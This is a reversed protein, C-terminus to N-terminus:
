SGGWAGPEGSNTYKYEVTEGLPLDLLLSWVKDGSVVDGHTGDDYMPITNPVWSGLQSLNGVICIRRPVEEGSADCTFLLSIRDDSGQAMTGGAAGAADERTNSLELDMLSEFSRDPMRAGALRAFRYTNALHSRFALDFPEEGAPATQDAGYWWFWDSGEAAYIAEWAKYAYWAKTGHRPSGWRADPAPLGSAALDERAIRLYEWAHNEVREGIWTDFNANIWSGPWLEEMSPLTEMPHSPIGRADNGAMYETTSTTIIRGMDHLKSLKRYLAHLFHKADIDKRYWEWANEGDLIVTILVDPADELPAHSLIARVFDEAAEEGKYSQYRFGIRDSLETDRFVLAVSGEGAPFRYPTINPQGPPVSRNLVRVDSAIWLIGNRGFIPLVPQAVAGEAPWMGTPPSGFMEQYFRVSKEVQVQADEPYAFRAPLSDNPQCIRALDSDYILPLIPHYYPTTIIEIQGTQQSRSYLLEQHIPIVNSMVKYAEVVIRRCDEETILRRLVFRGDATESVIDSLDCVAGDPLHVLGRLFDPDFHALYFWFKIERLEQTTYLDDSPISDKPLKTWLAKYGPFRDLMVESIGFANWANRYLYDLDQTVFDAAPTLALDIWPDTKGKWAALFGEVDITNKEEEIFPGLRRVYYEQLQVLLSSTLNVTCHINPYGRLMAAMDYYDKTAHTRVWPGSLQDTEPNVYLPQHQHWIINLYVPKTGESSAYEDGPNSMSEPARAALLIEGKENLVFVSNKASRNYNEITTPNGPDNVHNKGDVLFKYQFVGTPLPVVVAWVGASDPRLRNEDPSWGNFDGV